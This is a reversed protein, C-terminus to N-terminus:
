RLVTYTGALVDHLSRRPSLIAAIVYGILLLVASASILVSLWQMGSYTANLWTAVGLLVAVPAWVLATRWACQWGSARRGEADVLVLGMLSLSLSGRLLSTWAVWLLPFALVTLHVAGLTVQTQTRGMQQNIQEAPGLALAPFLSRSDETLDGSSLSALLMCTLGLSAFMTLVALYAARHRRTIEAPRHRSAALEAQLQQVQDYPEQVGLLCDLVKRAHLPVPARISRPPEGDPRLRGELALIAVQRLLALARTQPAGSALVRAGGSRALPFDLLQVQGGPQVWVHDLSLEPPLTGDACAAALEDALQELLTCVEGWGLRRNDAVLDALPSGTPAVFAHWQRGNEAGCTLWRLRAPRNVERRSRLELISSLPDLISLAGSKSGRDEIRSGRDENRTGKVRICVRRGLVSDEGLLVDEDQHGNGNGNGPFAGWVRFAGVREPLGGQRLAAVLRAPFDEALARRKEAWPLTVVRTGSVMEHLGRLGNAVRMTSALVVLGITQPGAWLAAGWWFDGSLQALGEHFLKAQELLMPALKLLAYFVLTRLLARRLGPPDTGGAQWVRLGLLRKAVSCGWRGELLVFYGVWLLDLSGRVLAKAVVHPEQQGSLWWLLVGLLNGLLLFLGADLLYAGLRMGMGAFSPQDPVFQLLATRFEVLNRWRRFRNRELGRLVVKDLAPSVDPQLSRVPPAPESVIRALTAAANGKQFPAQGTLLFYLTAAVSYVDSRFDIPEGKIQEPSAFLPTGLFTGTQTLHADSVLSKSLGFDGIKVRGDPLLFCNSPKVDRHIVGVQHAQQLGDIVDLVKAVAEEPPLPGNKEVLDKLTDGPMLEMVIYPQGAEDDAALVFVCRPHSILGAIRGEQRFRELAEPSAAAQANLLKLAVRRGSAVEEAEHVTGMGGSGLARLLRYGKISDPFLTDAGAPSVVAPPGTPVDLPQTSLGRLPPLPQGCYACFSPRDGSFELVRGCHSCPLQM